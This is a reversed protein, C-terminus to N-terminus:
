RTKSIQLCLERTAQTPDDAACIASVVAVGHAGAAFISRLNGAYVGGIAVLKHRSITRIARIGALGLPPQLDTKTATSFVPSIGLYAVDLQEAALADAVSEVSLGIIATPGLLERAMAYPMDRQGIHVGDAGLALAIDVRDNILLPVACPKLEALLARGLELFDRTSCDKERLQVLSVGGAVAGRVIEVLERGRALGRDTVLHLDLKFEQM